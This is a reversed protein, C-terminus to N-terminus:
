GIRWTLLILTLVLRVHLKIIQICLTKIPETVSVIKKTIITHNLSFFPRGNLWRLTSIGCVNRLSLIRTCKQFELSIGVFSSNALHSTNSSQLIHPTSCRHFCFGLIISTESYKGSNSNRM